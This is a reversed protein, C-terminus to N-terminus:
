EGSTGILVGNVTAAGGGSNSLSVTFTQGTSLADLEIVGVVDHGFAEIPMSDVGCLQSRTGVKIDTITVETKDAADTSLILRSGQLPKQITTSLNASGAAGVSVSGLGLPQKRQKSAVIQRGYTRARPARRIARKMLSRSLLHRPFFAGVEDADDDWGVMEIDDM